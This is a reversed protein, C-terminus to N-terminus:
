RLAELATEHDMLVPHSHKWGDMPGVVGAAELRRLIVQAEAFTVDIGHDQRLRRKLGSPSGHRAGTTVLEAALRLVRTDADHRSSEHEDIVKQVDGTSPYLFDFVHICGDFNEAEGCTACLLAVTAVGHLSTAVFRYREPDTPPAM